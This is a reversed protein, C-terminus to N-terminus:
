GRSPPEDLARPESRMERPPGRKLWGQDIMFLCEGCHDQRDVYAEDVWIPAGCEICRFVMPMGAPLDGNDPIPILKMQQKRRALAGLALGRRFEESAPDTM